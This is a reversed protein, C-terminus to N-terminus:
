HNVISQLQVSLKGNHQILKPVLRLDGLNGKFKIRCYDKGCWQFGQQYQTESGIYKIRGGNHITVLKEELGPYAVMQDLFQQTFSLEMAVPINSIEITMETSLKTFLLEPKKDASNQENQCAVAQAESWNDLIFEIEFIINYPINFMVAQYKEAIQKKILDLECRLKDIESKEVIKFVAAYLDNIKKSLSYVSRIFACDVLKIANQCSSLVTDVYQKNTNLQKELENINAIQSFQNLAQPTFICREFIIDDVSKTEKFLETRWKELNTLASIHNVQTKKLLDLKTAHEHAKAYYEAALNFMELNKKNTFDISAENLANVSSSLNQLNRKYCDVAVEAKNLQVADLETCLSVDILSTVYAYYKELQGKFQPQLSLTKQQLRQYYANFTAYKNKIAEESYTIEKKVLERFFAVLVYHLGYTLSQRVTTDELNIESDLISFIDDRFPILKESHKLVDKNNQNLTVYSDFIVSILYSRNGHYKEISALSQHYNLGEIATKIARNAFNIQKSYDEVDISKEFLRRYQDAQLTYMSCMIEAKLRKNKEDNEAVTFQKGRKVYEQASQIYNTRAVVEVAFDQASLNGKTEVLKREEDVQKENYITALSCLTSCTSSLLKIDKEDQVYGSNATSNLSINDSNALNINM